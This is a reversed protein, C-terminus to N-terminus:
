SDQKLFIRRAPLLDSACLCAMMAMGIMYSGHMNAWLGITVAAIIIRSTKSFREDWCFCLYYMVLFPIYTLVHPRASWHISSAYMSTITLLIAPLMGLGRQRSLQYCWAIAISIALAGVLVVGNLGALIYPITYIMDAVIEYTQFFSHPNIAWYFDHRPIYHHNLIFVGNVYARACGGDWLLKLPAEFLFLALVLILFFGGVRPLFVDSLKPQPATQQVQPDAM